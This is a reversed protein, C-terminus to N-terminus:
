KHKPKKTPPPESNLMELEIRPAEILKSTGSQLLAQAALLDSSDKSSTAKLLRENAETILKEADKQKREVAAKRDAM